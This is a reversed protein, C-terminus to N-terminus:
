PGEARLRALRRVAPWDHVVIRRRGTSLVGRARAEGLVKSTIRLQAGALSAVQHQAVPIPGDTGAVDFLEGLAVLRRHIRVPAPLEVLEAVQDTLRNVRAALAAVLLENVAAGQRRLADFEDQHVVLTETPEIARITATRVHRPDILAMEGFAEGVGMIALTVPQGLAGGASATVRGRTIVHLADGKQGRHYIITGTRYRTRHCRRLLTRREDESLGALLQLGADRAM